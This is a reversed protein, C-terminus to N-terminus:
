NELIPYGIYLGEDIEEQSVEMPPFDSFYFLYTGNEQKVLYSNDGDAIEDFVGSNYDDNTADYSYFPQWILIYSAFVVAVLVIAVLTNVVAQGVKNPPDKAIAKTRKVFEKNARNKKRNDTFESCIFFYNRADKDQKTRKRCNAKLANFYTEKQQDSFDKTASLDCRMELTFSLDHKLLYSFPNWWFICCYIHVLLKIWLDKNKLHTCEHRIIMELEDPLYDKVPLLVYRKFYGIVMISRVADTKKMYLRDTKHLVEESVEAFIRKEEETSFDYNALYYTKRSKHTSLSVISFIITGVAWVGLFVYVIISPRSAADPVRMWLAEVVANLFTGDRLIIQVGPFELPLFMRLVCVLYLVVMFWVSFLNSFYPIKRLFYIVIIMLSNTIVAM